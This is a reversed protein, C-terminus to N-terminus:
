RPAAKSCSCDFRQLDDHLRVIDSATQDFTAKDEGLQAQARGLDETLKAIHRDKVQMEQDTHGCGVALSTLLLAALARHHTVRDLKACPIGIFIRAERRGSGGSDPAGHYAARTEAPAVQRAVGGEAGESAV